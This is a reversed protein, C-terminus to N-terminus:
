LAIGDESRRPYPSIDPSPPKMIEPIIALVAYFFLAFLLAVFLAIAWAAFNSKEETGFIQKVSLSILFFAQLLSFVLFLGAVVLVFNALFQSWGNAAHEKLSRAAVLFTALIPYNRLNDVYDKLAPGQADLWWSPQTLFVKHFNM